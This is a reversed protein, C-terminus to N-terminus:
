KLSGNAQKREIEIKAIHWQFGDRHIAAQHVRKLSPFLSIWERAFHNSFSIFVVCRYQHEWFSLSGAHGRRASLSESGRMVFLTVSRFM